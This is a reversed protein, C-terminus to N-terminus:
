KPAQYKPIAGPRSKEIVGAMAKGAAAIAWSRPLHHMLRVGFRNAAGPVYLPTHGLAELAQRTVEAPSMIGSLKKPDFGQSTLAATDTTGPALVMLDVGTGKLEGHLSLCLGHVFNKTGAYAASWPYAAEGEMSGTVIVGGRGRAKLRPLLDYLLLMPTRSNVNLMADLQDRSQTNFEGKFGFGANSVLLGLDRKGIAAVIQTVADTQSLDVHALEVEIKGPGTMLEGKIKQMRELQRDVLILNFGARALHRSFQEGMGSAAGTVVAWPGYKNIDIAM